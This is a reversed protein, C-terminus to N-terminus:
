SQVAKRPRVTTTRGSGDVVVSTSGGCTSPVPPPVGPRSCTCARIMTSRWLESTTTGSRWVRLCPCSSPKPWSRSPRRRSRTPSSTGGCNKARSCSTWSSEGSSPKLPNAIVLWIFLFSSLLGFGGM